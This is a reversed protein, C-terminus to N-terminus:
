FPQFPRQTQDTDDAVVGTQKLQPGFVVNTWVSKVLVYLEVYPPVIMAVPPPIQTGNGPFQEYPTAVDAVAVVYAPVVHM